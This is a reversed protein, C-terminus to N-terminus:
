VHAPRPNKSYPARTVKSVPVWLLNLAKCNTKDGDRYATRLRKNFGKCFVEGVMRAVTASGKYGPCNVSVQLAGHTNRHQALVRGRRDTVIGERTIFYGPYSPSPKM